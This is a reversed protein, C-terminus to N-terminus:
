CDQCLEASAGASDAIIRLSNGQSEESDNRSCISLGPKANCPFRLGNSDCSWKRNIEPLNRKAYHFGQHYIDKYDITIVTDDLNFRISM